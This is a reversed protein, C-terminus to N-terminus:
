GSIPFSSNRNWSGTDRGGNSFGFDIRRGAELSAGLGYSSRDDHVSTGDRMTARIEHNYWDMTAAADVYWGDYHVWTSYLGGGM